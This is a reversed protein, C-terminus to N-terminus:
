PIRFELFPEEHFLLQGKHFCLLFGESYLGGVLGRPFDTLGPAQSGMFPLWRDCFQSPLDSDVWHERAVGVPQGALRGPRWVWHPGQPLQPSSWLHQIQWRWSAVHWTHLLVPWMAWALWELNTRSDSPPALGFLVAAMWSSICAMDM